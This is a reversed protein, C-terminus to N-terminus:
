VIVGERQNFYTIDGNKVTMVVDGKLKLGHFPTNKGKSYFGDADVIREQNKDILVLNAQTNEMLHGEPLGLIRRPNHCLLTALTTLPLNEWQCLATYSASFAVELGTMGPADNQKDLSTHPAHDTAIVDISGRKIAEVLARRNEEKRIPPNVRYTTIEDNFYIHHPTVEVTLNDYGRKKADEVYRLSRATSCHCIHLKAGVSEGLAINRATMLDEALYTDIPFIDKDDCHAMVIIDKEKAIQMAKYMAESNMVDQGDESIVRISDDLNLLHTTTHGDFGATISVAQMIDVLGVKDFQEKIYHVTDMNSVVPHTNAMTVTHTFGGRAAAKSFSEADEKYELGPVRGHTHLDVFSPMLVLGTGDITRDAKITLKEGIKKIQGENIFVDQHDESRNEDLLTVNQILISEKM